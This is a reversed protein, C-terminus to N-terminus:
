QAGRTCCPIGPEGHAPICPHEGDRGAHAQSRACSHAPMHRQKPKQAKKQLQHTFRPRTAATGASHSATHHLDRPAQERSLFSQGDLPVPISRAWLGTGGLVSCGQRLTHGGARPRTFRPRPLPCLHPFPSASVPPSQAAQASLQECDGALSHCQPAAIFHLETSASPGGQGPVSM